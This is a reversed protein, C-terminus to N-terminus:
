QPRMVTFLAKPQPNLTGQYITEEISLVEFAAGFIARVDKPEFRYPGVEDPQLRSFCKLLLHGGSAVRARIARVYDEYFWPLASAAEARYLEEWNPFVHESM